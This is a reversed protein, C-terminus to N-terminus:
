EKKSEPPLGCAALLRARLQKNYYRNFDAARIIRRIEIETLRLIKGEKFTKETTLTDRTSNISTIPCDCTILGTNRRIAKNASTNWDRPTKRLKAFFRKMAPSQTTM